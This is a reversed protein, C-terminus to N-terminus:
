PKFYVESRGTVTKTIPITIVLPDGSAPVFITVEANATVTLSFRERLQYQEQIPDIQITPDLGTGAKLEALEAAYEAGAAGTLEIVRTLQEAMTDVKTKVVFLPFMTIFTAILTFIVIVAVLMGVFSEARKCKLFKM